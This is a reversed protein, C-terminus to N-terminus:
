AEGMWLARSLTVLDAATIGKLEIRMRGRPGELELVGEPFSRPRQGLDLRAAETQTLTGLISVWDM